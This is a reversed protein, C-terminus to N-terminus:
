KHLQNWLLARMSTSIVQFPVPNVEPKGLTGQIKVSTVNTQLSTM